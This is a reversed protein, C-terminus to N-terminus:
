SRVQLVDVRWRGKLHILTLEYVETVPDLRQASERPIEIVQASSRTTVTAAFAPTQMQLHLPRLRIRRVEYPAAKIHGQKRYINSLFAAGSSCSDCAPGALQRLTRVDGTATAYDVVEWYYDIFARAGADTAARAQDPLLPEKPETAPSTTSPSEPMSTPRWTSRPEPARAEDRGACGALVVACSLAFAAAVRLTSM